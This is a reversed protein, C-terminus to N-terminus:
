YLSGVTICAFSLGKSYRLRNDGNLFYSILYMNIIPAIAQNEVASVVFDPGYLMKMLKFVQTDESMPGSLEGKSHGNQIPGYMATTINNSSYM